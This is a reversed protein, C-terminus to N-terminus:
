GGVPEHTATERPVILESSKGSAIDLGDKAFLRAPVRTGSSDPGTQLASTGREAVPLGVVGLVVSHDSAVENSNFAGICTLVRAPGRISGGSTTPPSSSPRGAACAASLVAVSMLSGLRIARSRRGGSTAGVM